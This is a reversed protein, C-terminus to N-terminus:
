QFFGGASRRKEDSIFPFPIFLKELPNEKENLSNIQVQIENALCQLDSKTQSKSVTTDSFLNKIAEKAKEVLTKHRSLLRKKQTEPRSCSINIKKRTSDKM